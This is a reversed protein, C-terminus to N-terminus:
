QSLVSKLADMISKNLSNIVESSETKVLILEFNTIEEIFSDSMKIEKIYYTINQETFYQELKIKAENHYAAGIIVRYLGNDEYILSNEFSESFNIANDYVKFVGVQFLSIESDNNTIAIVENKIDKYFFVAILVGIIVAAILVKIYPKM